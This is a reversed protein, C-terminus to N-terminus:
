VSLHSMKKLEILATITRQPPWGFPNVIAELGNDITVDDATSFCETEHCIQEDTFRRVSLLSSVCLLADRWGFMLVQCAAPIDQESVDELCPGHTSNEEKEALHGNKWFAIFLQIDASLLSNIPTNTELSRYTESIQAKAPRKLRM